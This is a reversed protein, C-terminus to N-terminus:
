EIANELPTIETSFNELVVPPRDKFGKTRNMQRTGVRVTPLLRCQRLNEAQVHALPVRHRLCVNCVALRAMIM